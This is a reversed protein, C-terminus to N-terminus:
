SCCSDARMRLEASSAHKHNSIMHLPKVQKTSKQTSHNFNPIHKPNTTPNPNPKPNTNANCLTLMLM